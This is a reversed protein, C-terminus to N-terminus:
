DHSGGSTLLPPMRGTKYADDIQPIFTQGVTQGTPLLTWALFEEDFTSIGSEIAELKAKIVLALARWKQRTAFGHARLRAAASYRKRGSPTKSVDELSPLALVIKIQRTHAVFGLLADSGTWGYMFGTAGYRKLIREIESRSRDESVTTQAAYRTM